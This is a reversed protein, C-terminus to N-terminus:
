VQKVDAADSPPMPAPVQQGANNTAPANAFDSKRAQAAADAVIACLSESALLL